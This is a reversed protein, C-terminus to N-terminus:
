KKKGNPEPKPEPKKEEQNEASAEEAPVCEEKMVQEIQRAAFLIQTQVQPLTELAAGITNGTTSADIGRIIVGGLAENINKITQAAQSVLSIAKEITEKNKTNM